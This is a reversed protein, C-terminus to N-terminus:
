SLRTGIGLNDVSLLLPGGDEREGCLVMGESEVGMMKAKKLNAVVVVHKDIVDEASYYKAIGSVIQRKSEGMDVILRLLKTSKAVPEAEIIKGVILEIKTFEDFTIEQNKMLKVLEKEIMSDEIKTFLPTPDPLPRGAQLPAKPEWTEITGTQGIMAWLRDASAPCIPSLATAIMELAELCARLVSLMAPKKAPDKALIWPKQTDFYVNCLSCMQMIESTAARLRHHDFSEAVQAQALAVQTLFATDEPRLDGPPVKGESWKACFTLTRHAFNGLKGVLDGNCIQQFGQWTFESDSTEPAIAATAFRIKDAGYTEIMEALDITWGDSKSFQKGELNLFENAALEDVTKYPQNQGLLMGPFFVAHFPINDKGIFQVHRTKPDCWYDRWKEPNWERSASIYGIPADFWVYFVKGKAGPVPIGWDLDRTISRPELNDIYNKAFRKVNPKWDKSAIWESLPQSLKDFRLFWHTTEKLSLPAGTLKSRPNKLDTAEFSSACSPCEDGRAQEFGCKPCTGVVYRDALFRGEQASYLQETTKKEIYGNTDLDHFFECTTKQHGEWTTRAYIDFSFDLKNFLSKNLAHYHDVHEKPSRKELEASLTIAVGYEDSGCLFHVDRGQLRCFRAFCDAPLYAGALHGLHMQGNAYLLASTILVKM